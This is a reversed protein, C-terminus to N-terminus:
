GACTKVWAVNRCFLALNAALPFLPTKLYYTFLKRELGGSAERFLIRAHYPSNRKTRSIADFIAHTFPAKSRWKYVSRAKISVQGNDPVNKFLGCCQLLFDDPVRHWSLPHPCVAALLEAPSHVGPPLCFGFSPNNLARNPKDLTSFTRWISEPALLSCLALRFNLGLRAIRATQYHIRRM